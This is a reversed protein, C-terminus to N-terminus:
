GLTEKVKIFRANTWRMERGDGLELKLYWATETPGKEGEELPTGLLSQGPPMLPEEVIRVLRGISEGPDHPNRQYITSTEVVLDGIKPNSLEDRLEQVKPAPNGVLTADYALYANIKILQLLRPNPQLPIYGDPMDM